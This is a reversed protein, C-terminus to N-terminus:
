GCDIKEKLFQRGIGSKLYKERSVADERNTFEEFLSNEM